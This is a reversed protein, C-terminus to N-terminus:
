SAQKILIEKAAFYMDESIIHKDYLRQNIFLKLENNFIERNKKLNDKVPIDKSMYIGAKMVIHKYM